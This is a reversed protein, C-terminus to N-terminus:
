FGRRERDPRSVYGGAYLRRWAHGVWVIAVVLVAITAPRAENPNITGVAMFFIYLVVVAGLIAWAAAIVANRRAWAVDEERRLETRRDEGSRRDDGRRRESGTPAEEGPQGGGPRGAQAHQSSSEM